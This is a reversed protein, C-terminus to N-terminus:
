IAGGAATGATPTSEASGTVSRERPERLSVSLIHVSVVLVWFPFLFEIWPLFGVTLLLVVACAYGLLGVWRPMFATRLTITATAIMFVAAMRMSYVNLLAYAVERSLQWLNSLQQTSSGHTLAAIVGGALASAVFLMAVFLLGSGLFVTAFFRDEREGMRDRVVGIFWLFAIGAFPVLNLALLVAALRQADSLWAGVERSSAAIALRVILLSTSLLLAFAIGAIGAARPTKLAQRTATAEPTM